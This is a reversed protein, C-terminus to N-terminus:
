AAMGRKRRERRKCAESLKTIHEPSHAPSIGKARAHWYKTLAMAARQQEQREAACDLGCKWTDYEHVPCTKFSM